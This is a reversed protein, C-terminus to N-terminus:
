TTYLTPVYQWVFVAATMCGAVVAALGGILIAFVASLSGSYAGREKEIAKMAEGGLLSAGVGLIIPLVFAVIQVSYRTIKSTQTDVLGPDNRAVNLPSGALHREAMFSGYLALVGAVVAVAFAVLAFPHVPAKKATAAMVVGRTPM